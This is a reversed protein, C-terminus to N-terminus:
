EDNIFEDAILSKPDYKFMNLQGKKRTLFYKGTLYLLKM